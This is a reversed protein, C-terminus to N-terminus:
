NIKESDSESLLPFGLIERKENATLFNANSIKQWLMERKSTLAHVADLDFVIEVATHFKKSLWGSLELRVLEGMPLITDEWLHLRAERYSTFNSNECLGVMSPPVGFALAIERSNMNKGASFDLDKPSFGMEKWEFCGELVMIKGANISGAYTNKIDERLQERQEDNLNETGNKVMLCGSPRGGNQLIALNHDSIANHQDISRSAVQLPSLGYWDNLPNFLKLHLIDDRSIIFKSSDVEYHYSEIATKSANPVIRVRDTRLCNLDGNEGFHIFANGSILLYNVLTEFFIGRSQNENPRNLLNTLKLNETKDERNKVSMPISAIGRSILNVARFAIANRQFGSEAVADYRCPTWQPDSVNQYSFFVNSASRGMGFHKLLNRM